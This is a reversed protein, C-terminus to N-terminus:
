LTDLNFDLKSQTQNRLSMMTQHHRLSTPKLKAKEANKTITFNPKSEKAIYNNSNFKM